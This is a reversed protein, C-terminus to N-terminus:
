VLVAGESASSVHKRYRELYGKPYDKMPHRVKKLRRNIEEDSLRIHLKRKLIDIDIVDGNEVISIVGNDFAEPSVHGICLGSQAGSFRGDTIFAVNRLKKLMLAFSVSLLEPMGPAGKPGLYKGVIIEGEQIKGQSIASLISAEDDFVKAYGSFVKMNQPVCSSKVVAGMPALNGKLIAIAGERSWPNNLPRIVEKNKIPKNLINEKISKGTVTLCDLNLKSMLGHMLSPIGGANHFDIVDYPGTPMIGALTPVNLNHKNFEEVDIDVGAEKALAIFHIVFNTSGGLAHNVILANILSKKNMIMSPKIGKKVLNVVVSGCKRSLVLREQSFAPITSSYPLAMGLSEMACQMTLASGMFNCAGCTRCKFYDLLSNEFRYNGSRNLHERMLNVGGPLCVTPINLRVTAILMAPNIKDCSSITVLGDIHNARVMSEVSDAIIDRMPLIHRMKETAMALGDCPAPVNFEFPIGGAQYVGEKVAEAMKDLHMHGPNLNTFSNAIVILPKSKVDKPSLGLGEFFGEKGTINRIHSRGSNKKTLM